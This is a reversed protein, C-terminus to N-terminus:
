RSFVVEEQASHWRRINMRIDRLCDEIDLRENSLKEGSEIIPVLSLDIEDCLAHIYAVYDISIFQKGGAIPIRISEFKDEYESIRKELEKEM